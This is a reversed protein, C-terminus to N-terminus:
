FKHSGTGGHTAGSSSVHTSTHAVPKSPRHDDTDIRRRLVNTYLHVEGSRYMNLHANSIYHSAQRKEHTSKLEGSKGFYSIMTAIAAGIGGFSFAPTLKEWLTKERAPEPEIEQPHFYDYNKYVSLAQAVFEKCGGATDGDTLYDTINPYMYYEQAYDTYTDLTRPGRLSITYDREAYNICLVLGEREAGLGYGNYDFFDDALEQVNVGPQEAIYVVCDMGTYQTFEKCLQAIEEEQADTLYDGEDIVKVDNAFVSVTFLGVLCLSLLLTFIKRM